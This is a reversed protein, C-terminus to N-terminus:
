RHSLVTIVTTLLFCCLYEEILQKVAPKTAESNSASGSLANHVYGKRSNNDICRVNDPLATDHAQIQLLSDQRSTKSKNGSSMSRPMQLAGMVTKLLIFTKYACRLDKKKSPMDHVEVTMGLVAFPHANYAHEEYLQEFTSIKGNTKSNKLM